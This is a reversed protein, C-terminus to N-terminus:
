PPSRRPAELVNRFTLNLREGLVHRQKPVAHRYTHQCTGCMVLLTGHELELEFPPRRQERKSKLVFRRTAGLSLSAVIPNVGLEAEDDSHFGMSDEGTRYRNLLVSNLAAGAALEVRTRLTLLQAPWARAPLTRGSYTYAADSFWCTLRPEPIDRGFFRVSGREWELTDLLERFLADAGQRPLFESILLLTAGVGLDIRTRHPGPSTDLPATM